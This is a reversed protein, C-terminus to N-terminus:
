KFGAVRVMEKVYPHWNSQIKSFWQLDSHQTDAKVADKKKITLKYVGIVAHFQGEGFPTKRSVVTGLKLFEFDKKTVRIGLEEKAKRMVAQDLTEMKLIRGGPLFWKGKEPENTRMGLLFEGGCVALIDVCFIPAVDYVRKYLEKKLFGKNNDM